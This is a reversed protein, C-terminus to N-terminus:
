SIYCAQNQQSNLAATGAKGSNQTTGYKSHKVVLQFFKLKRLLSTESKGGRYGPLLYLATLPYGLEINAHLTINDGDTPVSIFLLTRM